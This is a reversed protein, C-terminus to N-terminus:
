GCDGGEAGRPVRLYAQDRLRELFILTLQEDYLDGEFGILHAELYDRAEPFM